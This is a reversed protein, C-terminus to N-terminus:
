SDEATEKTSGRPLATTPLHDEPHAISSINFEDALNSGDSPNWILWLPKKDSDESAAMKVLYYPGLVDSIRPKAQDTGKSVSATVPSTMAESAPTVSTLAKTTETDTSDADQYYFDGPESDSM